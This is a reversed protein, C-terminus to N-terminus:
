LVLKVLPNAMLDRHLARLQPEGTARIALRVSTYNGRSSLQEEVCDERFGPDHRRVIEVVSSRLTAASTGIVKIPYDDCPFEIVPQDDAM